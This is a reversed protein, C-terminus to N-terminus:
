DVPPTLAERAQETRRAEWEEILARMRDITEQETAPSEAPPPTPAADTQLAEVAQEAEEGSGLLVELRKAELLKEKAASEDEEARLFAQQRLRDRETESVAVGTDDILDGNEFVFTRPGGGASRYWVPPKGSLQTTGSDPDTWQYMRANVASCFAIIILTILCRMM